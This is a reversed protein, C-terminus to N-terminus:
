ISVENIIYERISIGGLTAPKNDLWEDTAIMFAVALEKKGYNPDNIDIITSSSKIFRDFEPEHRDLFERGIYIIEEKTKGEPLMVEFLLYLVRPQISDIINQRRRLGEKIQDELNIVYSKETIKTEPHYEDNKLVWRRTTKRSIAFGIDDRIYEVEVTLVLDTLEKDSYYDVRIVEGKITTRKPHLRTILGTKYDHGFPPKTKDADILLEEEIYDYIKCHYNALPELEVVLENYTKNIAEKLTIDIDFTIHSIISDDYYFHGEEEYGFQINSPMKQNIAVYYEEPLIYIM